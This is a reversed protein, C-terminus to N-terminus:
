LKHYLNFDKLKTKWHFTDTELYCGKRQPVVNKIEREVKQDSHGSHIWSYNFIYMHNYSYIVVLFQSLCM